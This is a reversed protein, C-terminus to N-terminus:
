VVRWILDENQFNDNFQLNQQRNLRNNSNMEDTGHDTDSPLTTFNQQRHNASDTNKAYHLINKSTLSQLTKDNSKIKLTPQAPTSRGRDKLPKEECGSNGHSDKNKSEQQAKRSRKWKM